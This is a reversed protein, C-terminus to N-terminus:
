HGRGPFLAADCAAVTLVDLAEASRRSEDSTIVGDRLADSHVAMLEASKRAREALLQFHDGQISSMV